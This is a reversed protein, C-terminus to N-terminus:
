WKTTFIIFTNIIFYISFVVYFWFYSKKEEKAISLVNNLSFKSIGKFNLYMGLSYSRLSSFDELDISLETNSNDLSLLGLHENENLVQSELIPFLVYLGGIM